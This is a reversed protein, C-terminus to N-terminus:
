TKIGVTKWSSKLYKGSSVKFRYKGMSRVLNDGQIVDTNIGTSNEPNTLCAGPVQGQAAFAKEATNVPYARDVPAAIAPVTFVSLSTCIVMLICLATTSLFRHLYRSM